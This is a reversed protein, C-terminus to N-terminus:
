RAISKMQAPSISGVLGHSEDGPGAAFNLQSDSPGDILGWLGDIKLIAGNAARLTGLFAGSAPDYANIRGDGFNGVLLAGALAGFGAPAITMGWPASLKGQSILRQKLHGGADFVDVYGLHPRGIEDCCEKAQKAFAV